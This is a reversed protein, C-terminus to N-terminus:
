RIVSYNATMTTGGYITVVAWQGYGASSSIPLNLKMTSSGAGMTWTTASGQAVGQYYMQTTYTVGGAPATDTFSITTPITQGRRLSNAGLAVAKLDFKSMDQVVNYTASVTDTGLQGSATWGGYTATSPVVQNVVATDSGPALTATTWFGPQTDSKFLVNFTKAIPTKSSFQFTATQTQGRYLSSSSLNISQISMGTSSSYGKIVKEANVRGKLLWTGVPDCGNEIATQVETPNPNSSRSGIYLAAVAAVHPSAMSTGSKYGYTSGIETSLINTGPAAVRVWSGFNSFTSKIDDSDTSGVSIVGTCAAPYFKTNVNSNGAAAIVTVGHSKAYDVADQLAQSATPGGLSMNIVQAGNDTAWTIGDAVTSNSGSGAADLVKVILLQANPAFGAVGTSNNTVAGITGAAHTGHGNDDDPDSDVNVLDTGGIIKGTFDPHDAQCGTDIVAVKVSRLTMNWIPAMTMKSWDWQSLFSTDDPSTCAHVPADYEAWAVNPDKKYKALLQASNLLGNTQLVATKSHRLFGRHEVGFTSRSAAPTLNKYKVLIRTPAGQACAIAATVALSAATFLKGWVM